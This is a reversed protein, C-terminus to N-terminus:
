QTAEELVARPLRHALPPKFVTGHRPEAEQSLLDGAKTFLAASHVEGTLLADVAPDRWPM